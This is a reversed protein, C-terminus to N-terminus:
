RLAEIKTLLEAASEGIEGTRAKLRRVHEAITTTLLSYCEHCRELREDMSIDTSTLRPAQSRTSRIVTSFCLLVMGLSSLAVRVHDEFKSSLVREVIALLAPCMSLKLAGGAMRQETAPLFDAAALTDSSRRLADIADGTRGQSWLSSLLKLQTLKSSLAKMVTEHDEILLPLIDTSTTPPHSEVASPEKGVPQEERNTGFLSDPLHISFLSVTTHSLCAAVTVSMGEDYQRHFLDALGSFPAQSQGLTKMAPMDASLITLSTPGASLIAAPGKTNFAIASVDEALEFSAFHNISREWIEYIDGRGSEGGSAFLTEKPHFAISRVCGRDDGNFDGVLKCEKLDWLKIRGSADGAAICHGDPSHKLVTIACGNGPYTAVKTRSRTNWIEFKGDVTAFAFYDGFPHPDIASIPGRHGGIMRKLSGGSELDWICVGGSRCGSVLTEEGSTLKVCVVADSHSKLSLIPRTEDMKWVNVVRDDAGTALLRGSMPGIHACNITDAHAFWERIKVAHPDGSM